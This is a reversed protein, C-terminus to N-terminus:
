APRTLMRGVVRPLGWAVTCAFSLILAVLIGEIGLTGSLLWQLMGGIVAQAAAFAILPTLRGISQLFIAFPDTLCRMMALLGFGMVVASRLEVQTGPAIFDVLHDKTLLIGATAVATVLSSRLVLKRLLKRIDDLAGAAFQATMQPWTAFLIAQNFFSVFSFVKALSYYQIIEIPAVRQSMVLYDVQLVAAAMFYFVFFGRSAAALRAALLWSMRVGSRLAQRLQLSGFLCCLVVNPGYLSCIAFSVKDEAQEMGLTLLLVGLASGAAAASNAVYGRHTAYLIKTSIGAAASLSFLLAARLFTNAREGPVGGPIKAFLTDAIPSRLLALAVCVLLTVLAALGYGCVIENAPDGKESIRNTVANQVAYGLGLDALAFWGMLGVLIIFTAYEAATLSTSLIRLSYVMAFAAALRSVWASFVVWTSSTFTLKLARDEQGDQFSSGAASV